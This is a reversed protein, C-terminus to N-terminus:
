HKLIPHPPRWLQPLYSGLMKDFESIKSFSLGKVQNRHFEKLRSKPSAHKEGWWFPHILLQLLLYKPKKITPLPEGERWRGSSDSLYWKMLDSSYANILGNIKFPGNLQNLSPCHYSISKIPQKVIQSLFQCQAPIPCNQKPDYLHLGIEHGLLIIERLVKQSRLQNIQYFPCTTMIMYTAKIQCRNELKAIALAKSLSLDVDHRLIVAQQNLLLSRKGIKSFLFFQYNKKLEKFLKILYSYSFDGSWPKLLM